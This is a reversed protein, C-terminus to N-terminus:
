YTVKSFDAEVHLDDGTPIKDCAGASVSAPDNKCDTTAETLKNRAEELGTRLKEGLMRLNQVIDAVDKM